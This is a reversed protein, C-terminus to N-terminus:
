KSYVSAVHQIGGFQNMLIDRSLKSRLISNHEPVSVPKREPNDRTPLDDHMVIGSATYPYNYTHVRCMIM